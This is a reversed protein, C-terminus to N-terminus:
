RLKDDRGCHDIIHEPFRRGVKRIFTADSIIDPCQAKYILYHKHKRCIEDKINFEHCHIYSHVHWKTTHCLTETKKFVGRVDTKTLGKYFTYIYGYSSKGNNCCKSSSWQFTHNFIYNHFFDDTIKRPKKFFFKLKLHYKENYLQIVSIINEFM